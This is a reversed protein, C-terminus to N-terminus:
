RLHKAFFDLTLKWAEDAAAKVYNGGSANAFAHGAAPFSHIDASKGLEKLSAEFQQVMEPKISKDEAGFLGLLPAKLKALKTKDTEPFGYYMVVADVRDPALLGTQLAWGGGFCWGVVGLKGAGEKDRLFAVAQKLNDEAAAPNGMVEKMLAQAGQPDTAVKGGYLDVALAAYGHSAFQRAFDRVNDNLGWWEHVLILAPGGKKWGKPTALAGTVPKGGVTAYEVSRTVVEEGGGPRGVAPSPAPSDHAHEHAMATTADSAPAAPKPPTSQACAATAVTAGLIVATALTSLLLRPLAQLLMASDTLDQALNTM